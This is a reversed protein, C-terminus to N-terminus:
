RVRRAALHAAHQNRSYARIPKGAVLRAHVHRYYAPSVDELPFSGAELQDLVELARKVRVEGVLQLLIEAGPIVGPMRSLSSSSERTEVISLRWSQTGFENATWRVYGLVQSPEFVALSRRRDLEMHKIPKGFRLRHNIHEPYFALEIFTLNRSCM